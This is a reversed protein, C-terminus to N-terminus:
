PGTEPERDTGSSILLSESPMQGTLHPEYGDMMAAPPVPVGAFAPPLGRAQLQALVPAMGPPDGAEFARNFALSAMAGHGQQWATVALLAAPGATFPAPAHRVVATWLRGHAAAHAPDMMAWAVDWVPTFRLAAALMGIDRPSAIQGGARCGAVAARVRGYGHHAAERPSLGDLFRAAAAAEARVAASRPGNRPAIAAEFAARGPLAQQGPEGPLRRAARCGPRGCLCWGRGRSIRAATAQIGAATLTRAVQATPASAAAAPGWGLVAAEHARMGILRGIADEATEEAATGPGPLDYRIATGGGCLVLSGAPSYGLLALIGAAAALAAEARREHPVYIGPQASVTFGRTRDWAVLHGNAQLSDPTSTVAEDLLEDAAAESVGADLLSAVAQARDM